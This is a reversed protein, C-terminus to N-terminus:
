FAATNDAFGTAMAFGYDEHGQNTKEDDEGDYPKCPVGYAAPQAAYLGLALPRGLPFLFTGQDAAPDDLTAIAIQVKGLLFCHLVVGFPEATVLM